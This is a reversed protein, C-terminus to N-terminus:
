PTLLRDLFSLEPWPAALAATRPLHKRPYLTRLYAPDHALDRMAQRFEARRPALHPRDQLWHEVVRWGSRKPLYFFERIMWQLWRANLRRLWAPTAPWLWRLFMEDRRIHGPEDALHRRQIDLYAPEIQSAHALFERGFYVAREEAMLQLWLLGPLFRIQGSLLSLARSLWAPAALLSRDSNQYTAPDADRLLARFWSTHADEEAAFDRAERRLEETPARAAIWDLGPRGMVQEFFITQELFYLGHLRNYATRDEEALGAYLPTFHLPTLSEPIRLM